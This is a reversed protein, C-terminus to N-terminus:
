KKCKAGCQQCESSEPDYLKNVTLDEFVVAPQQAVRPCEKKLFKAEATLTIGDPM